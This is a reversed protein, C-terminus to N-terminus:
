ATGSPRTGAFGKALKADLKQCGDETGEAMPMAPAASYRTAASADHVVMSLLITRSAVAALTQTVTTEGGTRDKEPRNAPSLRTLAEGSLFRGSPVWCVTLPPAALHRNCTM